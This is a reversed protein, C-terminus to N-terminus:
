ETCCANKRFYALLKFYRYVSKEIFYKRIFKLQQLKLNLNLSKEKNSQKTTVQHVLAKLKNM